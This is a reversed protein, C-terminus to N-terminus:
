FGHLQESVACLTCPLDWLSHTAGATQMCVAQRRATTFSHEIESVYFEGGEPLSASAAAATAKELARREQEGLRGM